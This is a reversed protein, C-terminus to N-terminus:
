RNLMIKVKILQPETMLKLMDTRSNVLSSSPNDFPGIVCLRFDNEVLPFKWILSSWNFILKITDKSDERKV